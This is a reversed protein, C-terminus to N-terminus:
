GNLQFAQPTYLPSTGPCSVCFGLTRVGMWCAERPEAFRGVPAFYVVALLAAKVTHSQQQQQKTVLDQRVRKLGWPSYDALSRQGHSRGPLFVLTPQWKRRWPIKGIWPNFGHRRCQCASEKGSFLQPLM